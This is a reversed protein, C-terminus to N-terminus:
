EVWLSLMRHGTTIFAASHFAGGHLPSHGHSNGLQDAEKRLLKAKTGAQKGFGDAKRFVRLGVWYNESLNRKSNM